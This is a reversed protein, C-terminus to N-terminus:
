WAYDGSLVGGANFPTPHGGNLWTGGTTNYTKCYVVAPSKIGTATEINVTGNNQIKGATTNEDVGVKIKVDNEFNMTSGADITLNGDITGKIVKQDFTTVGKKKFVDGVVTVIPANFKTDSTYKGILETGNFVVNGEVDFTIGEELGTYVNMKSNQATFVAPIAVPYKDNVLIGDVAKHTENYTTVKVTLNVSSLSSAEEYNIRFNNKGEMVEIAGITADCAADATNKTGCLIINDANIVYKLNVNNVGTMPYCYSLPVSTYASNVPLIEIINTLNDALATKYRSDVSNDVQSIFNSNSEKDMMWGNLQGGIMNVFTAHVENKLGSKDGSNNSVTAQNQITAFNDINGTPNIVVRADQNNNPYTTVDRKELIILADKRTKGNQTSSTNNVLEGNIEVDTLTEVVIASGTFNGTSFDYTGEVTEFPLQYVVDSSPDVSEGAVYKLPTNEIDGNITNVLVDTGNKEFKLLGNNVINNVENTNNYAGKAFTMGKAVVKGAYNHCCGIGEITMDCDITAAKEVSFTKQADNTAAVVLEGVKEGRWIGTITVGEKVTFDEDVVIKGVILIKDGAVANTMANQLSAFDWAALTKTDPSLPRHLMDLSAITGTPVKINIVDKTYQAYGKDNVYFIDLDAIESELMPVIIRNYENANPDLIYEDSLLNDITGDEKVFDVVISQTKEIDAGVTPNGAKLSSASIGMTKTINGKASLLIMHQINKGTIDGAYEKISLMGSIPSMSLASAATGGQIEKAMVGALFTYKGAELERHKYAIPATQKTWTKAQLKGEEQMNEDYPYYALYKGTFISKNETKFTGKGLNVETIKKQKSADKWTGPTFADVPNAFTGKIIGNPSVTLQEGVVNAYNVYNWNYLYEATNVDCDVIKEWSDVSNAELWGDHVFRYNTFINEGIQDAGLWCLGVEDFTIGSGPLSTITFGKTSLDDGVANISNVVGEPMWYFQTGNWEGRTQKGTSRSTFLRFGESLQVSEGKLLDQGNQQIDEAFDNSCSAMVMPLVLASWLLKKNRM